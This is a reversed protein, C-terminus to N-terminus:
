PKIPMVVYIYDPNGKECIKAPKIPDQFSFEVEETDVTKLFQILYDPNFIVTNEAGKYDINLKEEGSGSDPSEISLVLMNKRFNMKISSFSESSMLSLRELSELFSYTNITATNLKDSSPIVKEYDPFDGELLQSILTTRESQLVVQNKSFFMTIDGEKFILPFVDILRLPLIIKVKVNTDVQKRILSLRRTDTAVMNFTGNKKEILVGRFYMRTENPNVCYSTKKSIELLDSTSISFKGAESFIESESPLKPYEEVNMLLFKYQFSKNDIIAHNETQTIKINDEPIKKILSIFNKGPVLITGKDKVNAEIFMKITLQLDTATISIGEKKAEILIGGTSSIVPKVPLIKGIKELCSILVQREILIEM